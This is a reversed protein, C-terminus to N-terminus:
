RFLKRVIRQTRNVFPYDQLTLIVRCFSYNFVVMVGFIVSSYSMNEEPGFHTGVIELSSVM